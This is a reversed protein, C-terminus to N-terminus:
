KVGLAELAAATFILNGRSNNIYQDLTMSSDEKWPITSNPIDLYKNLNEATAPLSFFHKAEIIAKIEDVSSRIELGSLIKSVAEMYGYAEVEAAPPPPPLQIDAKMYHTYGQRTRIAIGVQYMLMPRSDKINPHWVFFWGEIKDPIQGKVWEQKQTRSYKEIKAFCSICVINESEQKCIRCLAANENKKAVEDAHRISLGEFFNDCTGDMRFLKIDGDKSNPSNLKIRVQHGFRDASFTEIVEGKYDGDPCFTEGKGSDATMIIEDGVKFPRQTM